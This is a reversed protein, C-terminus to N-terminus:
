RSWGSILKHNRQPSVVEQKLKTKEGEIKRLEQRAAILQKDKKALRAELTITEFESLPQSPDMMLELLTITDDVEPRKTHPPPKDLIPDSKTGTTDLYTSKRTHLSSSAEASM